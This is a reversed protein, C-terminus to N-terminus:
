LPCKRRAGTLWEIMPVLGSVGASIRRKRALVHAALRHHGDIVSLGSVSDGCWRMDIEIPDLSEGRRLQRLLFHIRGADYRGGWRCTERWFELPKAKLVRELPYHRVLESSYWQTLRGILVQSTFESV